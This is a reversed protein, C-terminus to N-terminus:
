TRKRLFTLSGLSLLALTSPEPVTSITDAVAQVLLGNPPLVVTWREIDPNPTFEIDYYQYFTDLSLPPTPPLPTVPSTSVITGPVTSTGEVGSIDIITPPDPTFAWTLQLRMHKIPLDDIFNPLHLKYEKSIGDPADQPEVINEPLLPHLTTSPDADDVSSFAILVLNNTAPDLQWHGHVSLPGGRYSPPNLDDGLTVNVTFAAVAAM